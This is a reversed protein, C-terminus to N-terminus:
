EDKVPIVPEGKEHAAVEEKPTEDEVPIEEPQPLVKKAAPTIETVEPVKVVHEEVKPEEKTVAEPPVVKKEKAPTGFTISKARKRTQMHLNARIRNFSM